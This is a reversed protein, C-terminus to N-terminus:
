LPFSSKGNFIVQWEISRSGLSQMFSQLMVQKRWLLTLLLRQCEQLVQIGKSQVAVNNCFILVDEFIAM